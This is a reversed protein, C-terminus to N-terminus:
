GLTQLVGVTLPTDTGGVRGSPNHEKKMSQDFIFGEHFRAWETCSMFIQENDNYQDQSRKDELNVRDTKRM